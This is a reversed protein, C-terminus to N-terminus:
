VVLLGTLIKFYNFLFFATMGPILRRSTFGHKYLGIYATGTLIIFITNVRQCM